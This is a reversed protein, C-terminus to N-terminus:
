NKRFKDIQNIYYQNYITYNKYYGVKLYEM